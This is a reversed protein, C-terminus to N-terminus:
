WTILFVNHIPGCQTLNLSLVLNKNYAAVFTLLTETLFSMCNTLIDGVLKITNM